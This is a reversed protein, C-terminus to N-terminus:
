FSREPKERVRGQRGRGGTTKPRHEVSLRHAMDRGSPGDGFLLEPARAATGSAAGTKANPTDNPASASDAPNLGKRARAIDAVVNAPDACNAAAEIRVAPPPAAAASIAPM